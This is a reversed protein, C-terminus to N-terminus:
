RATDNFDHASNRRVVELYIFIIIHAVLRHFLCLAATGTVRARYWKGDSSYKAIVPQKLMASRLKGIGPPLCRVYNDIRTM